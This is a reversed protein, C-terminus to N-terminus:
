RELGLSAAVEHIADALGTREVGFASAADPADARSPMAFLEAAARGVPFGLSDTLRAAAESPALAEPDSAGFLESLERPDLADPGELACTGEIREGEDDLSALVKAVDGASVPAVSQTAPEIVFAPASGAAEVASTFWLEGAGIVHTCRLIAYELGSHIVAEEAIGKARLFPHSAGTSAGPYSLLVFREVRASRAAGLAILTSRHNAEFIAADDAPEIGGVLHILTHVGGLVAALSAADDLRGTTVKAGLARLAGANEDVGIAARVEPNTALLAPIAARGISGEAGTIMVTM